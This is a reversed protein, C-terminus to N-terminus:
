QPKFEKPIADAEAPSLPTMTKVICHSPLSGPVDRSVRLDWDAATCMRQSGSTLTTIHVGQETLLPCSAGLDLRYYRTQSVRIFITKADQARWGDFEHMSFCAMARDAAMASSGMLIMLTSALVLVRKM